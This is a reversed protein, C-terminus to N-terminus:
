RSEDLFLQNLNENLSILFKNCGTKRNKIENLIKFFNGLEINFLKEVNNIVESLEINGGNICKSHHLAYVLEVLGVKSSTWSLSSTKRLYLNGMNELTYHLFEELLDNAMVQSLLTCYSTTFNQDYQHYSHSLKMKLDFNQRMFYKFDMYSANRRYYNYFDRNEDHFYKLKALENEYYKRLVKQGGNPKLTEISLIESYYIFESILKPKLNKFFHIEDAMCEFQYNVVLSKIKTISQDIVILAKEATYILNETEKNLIALELELHSM